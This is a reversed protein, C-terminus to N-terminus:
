GVCVNDISNRWKSHVAGRGGGTDGVRALSLSCLCLCSAGTLMAAVGGAVEMMAATRHFVAVWRRQREIM